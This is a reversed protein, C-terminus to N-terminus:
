QSEYQSRALVLSPTVTSPLIGTVSNDQYKENPHKAPVAWLKADPLDRTFTVSVIVSMSVGASAKFTIKSYIFASIYNPLVELFFGVWLAPELCVFFSM